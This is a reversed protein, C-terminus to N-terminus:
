MFDPNSKEDISAITKEFLKMVLELSQSKSSGGETNANKLLNEFAIKELSDGLIETHELSINTIVSVLPRIVNTSDLRGGLGTEVVAIDVEKAAFCSFAIATTAEFFTPQHKKL